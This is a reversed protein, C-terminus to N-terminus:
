AMQPVLVIGFNFPMERVARRQKCAYANARTAESTLALFIAFALAV